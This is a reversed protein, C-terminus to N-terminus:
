HTLFYLNILAHPCALQDFPRCLQLIVRESKFRIQESVRSHEPFHSLHSHVLGKQRSFSQDRTFGRENKEETKTFEVVMYFVNFFVMSLQALEVM